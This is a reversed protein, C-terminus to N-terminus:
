EACTLNEITKILSHSNYFNDIALKMIYRTESSKMDPLIKEFRKKMNEDACAKLYFLLYSIGDPCLPVYDRKDDKIIIWGESNGKQIDKIVAM